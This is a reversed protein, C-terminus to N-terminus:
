AEIQDGALFKDPCFETKWPKVGKRQRLLQIIMTTKIIGCAEQAPHSYPKARTEM